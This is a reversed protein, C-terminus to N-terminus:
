GKKRNRENPRTGSAARVVPRPLYRALASLTKYQLGPVTVSRGRRVDRLADAAVTDSNLWLWDPLGSMDMDARQHFETRTFGPALANVHVGTGALERNLSESFVTCWSKAASYTGGAIWAAVSSVNVIGGQGREVMGPVAAHSLRMVATVLVDLLRQEDDIPSASFPDTLGFGANNVLLDIPRERDALRAEVRESDSRVSLDAALVECAIGQQGRLRAALEELKAADRAVLVLDAGEAALLTAFSLGIGATPGTILATTM